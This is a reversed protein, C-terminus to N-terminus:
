LLYGVLFTAREFLVVEDAACISSFDRLQKELLEVNPILSYVIQSWARYLTEDWISTAFCQINSFHESKSKV